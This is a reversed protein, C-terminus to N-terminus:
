ELRSKVGVVLLLGCQRLEETAGGEMAEGGRGEGRRAGEGESTAERLKREPTLSQRGRGRGRQWTERGGSSRDLMAGVQTHSGSGGGRSLVVYLRHRHRSAVRDTNM